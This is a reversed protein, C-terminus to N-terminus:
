YGPNRSHDDPNIQRGPTVGEYYKGLRINKPKEQQNDDNPM